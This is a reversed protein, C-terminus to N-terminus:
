ELWEMGEFLHVVGHNDAKGISIWQGDRLATVVRTANNYNYAKCEGTRSRFFVMLERDRIQRTVPDVFRVPTWHFESSTDKRSFVQAYPHTHDSGLLVADGHMPDNLARPIECYKVGGGSDGAINSLYSLFFGGGSASYYHLACYEFGYRGNSAGPQSTMLECANQALEELTKFPGALPGDVELLGNELRRVRVNPNPASCGSLGCLLWLVGAWCLRRFM